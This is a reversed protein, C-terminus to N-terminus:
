APSLDIEEGFTGTQRQLPRGLRRNELPQL